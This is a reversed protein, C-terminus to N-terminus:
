YSWKDILEYYGNSNDYYYWQDASKCYQPLLARGRQFRRIITPEPISHGGEFVRRAVRQIAMEADKLSIFILCVEFGRRKWHEIHALYNRSSLTTEIAFSQQKTVAEEILQLMLRGARFAEREPHFPSLGKALLDANIFQDCEALAPLFEEAFTTKGAGNPGAIIIAVPM